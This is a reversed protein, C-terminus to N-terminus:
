SSSTQLSISEWWNYEFTVQFTEIMNSNEYGLTIEGLETPYMNNIKIMKLPRAQINGNDASKPMETDYQTVIADSYYNSPNSWGSKGVNTEAGVIDEMWEEFANRVQFDTDVLVTVVWPMYSRDGAVKIKRGMYPVDINTITSPPLTAATCLFGFSSKANATGNPFTLQVDYRSPRAGGRFRSVFSSVNMDAM